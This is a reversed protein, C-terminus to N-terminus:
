QFSSFYSVVGGGWRRSLGFGHILRTMSIKILKTRTMDIISEQGDARKGEKKECKIKRERREILRM